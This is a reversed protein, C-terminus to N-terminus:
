ATAAFALETALAVHESIAAAFHRPTFRQTGMTVYGPVKLWLSPRTHLEVNPRPHQKHMYGYQRGSRSPWLHSFRLLSSQHSSTLLNCLASASEQNEGLILFSNDFEDNATIARPGPFELHKARAYSDQPATVLGGLEPFEPWRHFSEVWLSGSCGAVIRYNGLSFELTRAAGFAGPSGEKGLLALTKELFVRNPDSRGFRWGIYASRLAKRLASAM